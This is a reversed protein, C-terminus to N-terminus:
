VVGTAVECFRRASHSALAHELVALVTSERYPPVLLDFAGAELVEIWEQEGGSKYFIVVPLNPCRQKVQRLADNWTGTHFSWGCFMVDYDGGDLNRQLELLNEVKQLAVHENLIRQLAASEIGDTSLLLIKPHQVVLEEKESILNAVALLPYMEKAM